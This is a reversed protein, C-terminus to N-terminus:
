RKNLDSKPDAYDIIVKRCYGCNYAVVASGRILSLESLTVDDSYAPRLARRKTGRNWAIAQSSQILGEEMESGCYPCNM